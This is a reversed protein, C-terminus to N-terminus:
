SNYYNLLMKEVKKNDRFKATLLNLNVENTPEELMILHHNTHFTFRMNREHVYQYEFTNRDIQRVVTFILRQTIFNSGGTPGFDTMSSATSPEIYSSVSFAVSPMVSLMDHIGLFMEGCTLVSKIM